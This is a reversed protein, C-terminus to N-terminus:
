LPPTQGLAAAEQPHLCPRLKHPLAPIQAPLEGLGEVQLVDAALQLLQAELGGDGLEEGGEEGLDDGEAWPSGEGHGDGEPRQLPHPSRCWSSNETIM